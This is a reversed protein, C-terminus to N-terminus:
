GNQRKPDAEGDDGMVEIMQEVQERIHAPPPEGTLPPRTQEFGPPPAVPVWGPREWGGLGLDSLFEDTDRGANRDREYLPWVRDSTIDIIGGYWTPGFTEQQAHWTLFITYLRGVGLPRQGSVTMREFHTPHEALGGPLPIAIVQGPPPLQASAKVVTVIEFPHLTAPPLPVDFRDKQSGLFRAGPLYRGIVVADAAAVMEPVTPPPLVPIVYMPREVVPKPAPQSESPLTMGVLVIALALFAALATFRLLKRM